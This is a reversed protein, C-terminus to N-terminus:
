TGSCHMTSVPLTTAHPLLVPVMLLRCLQNCSQTREHVPQDGKGSDKTGLVPSPSQASGTIGVGLPHYEM